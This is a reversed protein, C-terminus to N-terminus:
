FKFANRLRFEEDSSINQYKEMTGNLFRKIPANYDLYSNFYFSAFRLVLEIDRM